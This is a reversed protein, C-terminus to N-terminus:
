HPTAARRRDYEALHELLIRRTERAARPTQQVSHGSKLILESEAGGVHSSRYPVVGDSGGTHGDATEDGIISHYPVGPAIPLDALALLMPNDDRLAQLSTMRKVGQFEPRALRLFRQSPDLLRGPLKLLGSAWNVVGRRALPSGRHPTAYFVVRGVFPLPEFILLKELTERDEESVPLDEPRKDFATDWLTLGTDVVLSRTLIGGMSHGCVVIDEHARDNKDPDVLAYAEVLAKRLQASSYLIPQGTPYFWFAFQCRTRIEENALLDAYLPLWTLPDSALGHILLVFMKGPEYPQFMYLGGTQEYENGRFLAAIGLQQHRGQLVSAVPTIYDIELPVPVGGIRVAVTKTPDYIELSIPAQEEDLVSADDPFRVIATAAVAIKPPLFRMRVLAEDELGQARNWDRRLICPVGFGRRQDPKQIGEVDFDYAVHLESYEDLSWELENRGLRVSASGGYWEATEHMRYKGEEDRRSARLLDALATTHLDCAWRFLADFQEPAPELKPDFLYAYSYRITTTLARREIHTWKKSQLYGLEAIAVALERQRTSKLEDQLATIAGIPDSKYNEHLGRRRLINYTVESVDKSTLVSRNARQLWTEKSQLRVGIGSCGLFLLLSAAVWRM